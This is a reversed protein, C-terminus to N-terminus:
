KIRLHKGRDGLRAFPLEQGTALVQRIAQKDAERTTKVLKPPLEDLDLDRDLILPKKGGNNAVSINYDVTKLKNIDRSILLNLLRGLLNNALNRDLKILHELEEIRRSRIEVWEQCHKALNIYDNIKEQFEQQALNKDEFLEILATELEPPLETSDM